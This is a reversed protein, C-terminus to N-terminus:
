RAFNYNWFHLAVQAMHNELKKSFVNALGTFLPMSMRMNLNNREAYSTSVLDVNPAGTVVTIDIGNVIGPNYRPHASEGKETNGYSPIFAWIPRM